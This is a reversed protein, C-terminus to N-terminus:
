IVALARELDEMLWDPDELGIYFRVLKWSVMSDARGPINYFGAAPLVLSEYGGWSVALLFRQLRAVFLEVKKMDDTQLCVTLLGGAGRMQRKALEYQPFSPLWPYLVQEIKPHQELFTAIQLASQFSRQVRLELTRLGRLMLWADHPSLIGGLTMLESDFIKQIMARHSCVVGAVVDSHGNLYKTASHVVIDIGLEIPNQYVPSCYSNDICTVIGRARALQACAALDQLEFTLSNPSELYLLKTNPQIAKEIEEMKTGDVFMCGVGFRPLFKSLLANTWSYPAQVCVVQDGASVNAIVANAVAGAGSAFVLADEAKELAALKQRLIQVTPNNGRTYIHHTLENTFAQRFDALNKFAFNSTQIIPPAVANFYQERDEGLHTLLDSLHMTKTGFILLILNYFLNLLLNNTILFYLTSWNKSFVPQV